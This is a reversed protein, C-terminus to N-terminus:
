DHEVTDSDKGFDIFGPIFRAPSSKGGYQIYDLFGSVFVSVNHVDDFM